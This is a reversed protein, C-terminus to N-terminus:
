FYFYLLTTFIFYYIFFLVIKYLSHLHFIQCINVCTVINECREKSHMYYYYCLQRNDKGVVAVPISAIYLLAYHTATFLLRYCHKIHFHTDFYFKMTIFVAASKCLLICAITCRTVSCCLLEIHLAHFEHSLSCILRFSTLFILNRIIIRFMYLLIYLYVIIKIIIIYKYVM